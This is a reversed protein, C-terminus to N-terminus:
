TADRFIKAEEEGPYPGQKVEVFRTDELMEISHGGGLLVACWGAEVEQLGVENWDDDFVTIRAKGKEFFIAEATKRIQIDRDPHRHAKVEHGAPREFAGVQFTDNQQTVFRFGKENVPINRSFFLAFTQGNKAISVIDDVVANYQFVFFM